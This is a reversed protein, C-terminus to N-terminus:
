LRRWRPLSSRPVYFSARDRKRRSEQVFGSVLADIEDGAAIAHSGCSCAQWSQLLM